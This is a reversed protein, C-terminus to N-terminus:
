RKQLRKSIMTKLDKFDQPQDEEKNSLLDEIIANLKEKGTLINDSLDKVRFFDTSNVLKLLINKGHIMELWKGKNFELHEVGDTMENLKSNFLNEITLPNLKEQIDGIRQSFELINKLKNLAKEKSDFEELIKFKEIWNRKLDERTNIVAHNAADLYLRERSFQLIKEGIAAGGLTLSNGMKKVVEKELVARCVVYM